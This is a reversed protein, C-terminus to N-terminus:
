LNNLTNATFSRDLVSKINKILLNGKNIYTNFKNFLQACRMRLLLFRIRKNCQMCQVHSVVYATIGILIKNRRKIMLAEDGVRIANFM